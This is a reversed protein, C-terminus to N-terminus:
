VPRQRSRQRFWIAVAEVDLEGAAVSLTVTEFEEDAVEVDWGNWRLFLEAGAAGVRKNGDIFPHNLVLSHMFAAAKAPEDAYLDEGAFTLAPRALAAELAGRDRLGSSGGFAGLLAQHLALVQEMSLYRIM